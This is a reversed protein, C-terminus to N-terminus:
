DALLPVKNGLVQRHAVTPIWSINELINSSVTNILRSIDKKSLVFNEYGIERQASEDVRKM